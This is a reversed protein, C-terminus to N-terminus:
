NGGALIRKVEKAIGADFQISKKEMSCIKGPLGKIRALERLPHKRLRDFPSLVKEGAPFALAEHMFGEGLFPARSDLELFEALAIERKSNREFFGLLKERIKEEVAANGGIDLVSLFEAYGAFLEDAGQGSFFATYCDDKVSRMAAFEPLAISVQLLDRSNLVGSTLNVLGPLESGKIEIKKLPLELLKSGREARELVPSNELGAVYLVADAKQSVAKAVLSSDIGGSFLVAASSLGETSEEIAEDFAKELADMSHREPVSELLSLVRECSSFFSLGM